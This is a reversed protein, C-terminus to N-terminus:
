QTRSRSTLKTSFEVKRKFVLGLLNDPFTDLLKCVMLTSNFDLSDKHYAEFARFIEQEVDKQEKVSVLLFCYVRLIHMFSTLTM